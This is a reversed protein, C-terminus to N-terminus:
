SVLLPKGAALGDVKHQKNARWPQSRLFLTWALWRSVGVHPGVAAGEEFGQGAFVHAAEIKHVFSASVQVVVPAVATGLRPLPQALSHRQTTAAVHRHCSSYVLLPNSTTM